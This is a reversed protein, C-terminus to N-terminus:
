MKRLDVGDPNSMVSNFVLDAISAGASGNMSGAVNPFNNSAIAQQKKQSNTVQEYFTPVRHQIPPQIGQQQFQNEPGATIAFLRDLTIPTKSLTGYWENFQQDTWGRREIFLQKEREFESLRRNEESIKEKEDLMRKAIVAASKMIMANLVKGSDSDPEKIASDLDLVFEEKNVGTLEFVDVDKKQVQKQQELQQTGTLTSFQAKLEALESQLKMAEKSAGGYGNNAASLQEKQQAIIKKLTNADTINDINEVDVSGVGQVPKIKVVSSDIEKGSMIQNNFQEFFDDTFAVDEAGIANLNVSNGQSNSQTGQPEM